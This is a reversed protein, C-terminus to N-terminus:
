SEGGLRWLALTRGWTSLYDGDFISQLPRGLCFPPQVLNIPRFSGLRINRNITVKEYQTALLYKAGSQTIRELACQVHDNPLHIFLDRCLALDCRPLKDTLIDLTIFEVGDSAYLAQNREILEPVIDAGIYHLPSWDVEKAWNFDGCPVDLVSTVGLDRLLDPLASRITKTAAFSSGTGSLSESSGFLNHRFYYGFIENAHDSKGNLQLLKLHFDRRIKNFASYTFPVLSKVEVEVDPHVDLFYNGATQCTQKGIVASCASDITM